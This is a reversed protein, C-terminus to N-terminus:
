SDKKKEKILVCVIRKKERKKKFAGKEREAFHQVFLFVNKKGKKREKNKKKTSCEIETLTLSHIPMSNFIPSSVEEKNM